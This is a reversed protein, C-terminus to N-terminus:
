RLYDGSCDPAKMDWRTLDAEGRIQTERHDDSWDFTPGRKFGARQMMGIANAQQQRLGRLDQGHEKSMRGMASLETWVAYSFWAAWAVLALAVAAAVVAFATPRQAGHAVADNCGSLCRVLLLMACLEAKESFKM